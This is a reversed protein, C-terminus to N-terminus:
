RFPWRVPWGRPDWPSVDLQRPDGGALPDPLDDNDPDDVVNGEDDRIKRDLGLRILALSGFIVLTLALLGVAEGSGLKM